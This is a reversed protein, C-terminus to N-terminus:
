ARGAKRTVTWAPAKRRGAGSSASRQAREVASGFAARMHTTTRIIERGQPDRM